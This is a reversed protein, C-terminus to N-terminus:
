GFAAEIWNGFECALHWRHAAIMHPATLLPFEVCLQGSKRSSGDPLPASLPM